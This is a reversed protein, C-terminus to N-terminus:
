ARCFISVGVASCASLAPGILKSRMSLSFCCLLRLKYPPTEQRASFFDVFVKHAVVVCLTEVYALRVVHEVADLYDHMVKRFEKQCSMVVDRPSEGRLGFLEACRDRGGLPTTRPRGSQLMCRGISSKILVGFKEQLEASLAGRNALESCAVTLYMLLADEQGNFGLRRRTLYSILDGLYEVAADPKECLLKPEPVGHHDGYRMAQEYRACIREFTDADFMAPRARDYQLFEVKPLKGAALLECFYKHSSKWHARQCDPGCYVALGCRGCASAAPFESCAFCMRPVVPAVNCYSFAEYNLIRATEQCGDSCVNVCTIDYQDLVKFQKANTRDILFNCSVKTNKDAPANDCVYCRQM